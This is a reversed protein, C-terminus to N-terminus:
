YHCVLAQKHAQRSLGAPLLKHMLATLVSVCRTRFPRAPPTSPSRPSSTQSSKSQLASSRCESIHVLSLVAQVVPLMLLVLPWALVKCRQRHQSYTNHVNAVSLQKSCDRCQMKCQFSGPKKAVWVPKFDKAWGPPGAAAFHSTLKGYTQQHRQTSPSPQDAPQSAAARLNPRSSAAVPDNEAQTPEDLVVVEDDSRQESARPRPWTPESDSDSQTSGSTSGSAM